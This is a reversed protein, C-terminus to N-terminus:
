ETSQSSTVKVSCFTEPEGTRPNRRKSCVVSVRSPEEGREQALKIYEEAQAMGSGLSKTFGSAETTRVIM